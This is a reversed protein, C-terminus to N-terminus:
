VRITVPVIWKINKVHMKSNRKRLRENEKFKFVLKTNDNMVYSIICIHATIITVLSLFRWDLDISKNFKIKETNEVSNKLFILETWINIRKKSLVCKGFNVCNWM